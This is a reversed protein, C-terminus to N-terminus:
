LTEGAHELTQGHAMRQYRASIERHLAINELYTQKFPSESPILGHKRMMEDYARKLFQVAEAAQGNAELALSRRYLVEESTCETIQVFGFREYLALAEGSSELAKKLHFQSEAEDSLCDALGLHAAADECAAAIQYQRSVLNEEAMQHIRSVLELVERLRNEEKENANALMATVLYLGARGIDLPTKEALPVCKKLLEGAEELLGLAIKTQSIRLFTFLDNIDDLGHLSAELLALGGAYDGLYIGQIQGCFMLAGSETLSEGIERAMRLRKQEYEVLQRYYDGSREYEESLGRLVDIELGKDNLKQLIPLATELYEKRRQIDDMGYSRGINLLMIVESHHDGLERALDLAQQGTERYIPNRMLYVVSTLNMLSRLERPRAGIKRSLDLAKQAMELGKELQQRSPNTVEPQRLLADILWATNDKMKKALPLLARADGNGSTISGMRYHVDARGDLIEFKLSLIAELQEQSDLVGVLQDVLEMARNYHSLADSNAYIAQAQRASQLTYYLEKRTNGAHRYHYTMLGDYGSLTNASINTEIYQAIKLHYAVRQASLMGDYAADRMLNSKFSYQMGLESLLGNEQIIQARQLGALITKLPYSDGILSHLVNFWFVSGIISAVQLVFKEDPDLRDIRSSLLTQLSAPLDLTSIPGTLRWKQSKEDRVLMNQAVLSYILEQIYYPNGESNAIILSETEPPLTDPGIMASIFKQSDEQDLPSLDVRTLRHPYETELYHNFEWIPAERDSRFVIMWLLTESDCLSLCYRLLDLSAVGAWHMDRLVVVLPGKRALAELLSRVAQYFQQRLAEADLYRVKESFEEELPLALYTALYPYHEATKEGWLAECQSRLQDRVQEKSDGYQVKLWDFLLSRWVFYPTPQGYSRCRGNVWTLSVTPPIFNERAEALLAGQHLFYDQLEKILYTKGVGKDGILSVIQGRGVYLDEVCGKLIQFEKSRGVMPICFGFSQEIRAQTDGSPFGLPRFVAIPQSVGKVSITGLPQWEFKLLTQSYTSESVLVTGPEAAAELRAAIAIAMGMATDERHQRLNGVRTVIVEGSNVGVRMRLEGGQEPPLDAAFRKISQQMALAAMIAREPDDENTSGAGFFAVMGDGRFQDVAGGFRYIEAELINLVRNMLDVWAETGLRELLNTSSTMDTVIVSVVKREGELPATLLVPPPELDPPPVAPVPLLSAPVEDLLPQGCKGCFRFASPNIFGCSKCAFALRTGCMGCFLMEPPSDFGCNSCKM